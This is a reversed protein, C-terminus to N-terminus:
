QIKNSTNSLAKQYSQMLKEDSISDLMEEDMGAEKLAKRLSSADGQGQLLQQLTEKDVNEASVNQQQLVQEGSTATDMTENSQLSQQTGSSSEVGASGEFLSEGGQEQPNALQGSCDKGQPCNPDTGQEIEEKDTLGDSDTDKLYPSTNYVNREEWDNLGDGDTDKNKDTAQGNGCNGGSCSSNTNKEESASRQSRSITDNMQGFWVVLFVLALVGLGIALVKRTLSLRNDSNNSNSPM